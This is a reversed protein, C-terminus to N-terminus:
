GYPLNIGGDNTDTLTTVVIDIPGSEVAGIDVKGEKTRPAGRQDTKIGFPISATRGAGVAASTFSSTSVPPMTETPGGYFGLASTFPQGVIHGHRQTLGGSALPDDIINNWGFAADSVVTGVIDGGSSYAIISNNMEVFGSAENFIGGGGGKGNKVLSANGALTCDELIPYSYISCGNYLV